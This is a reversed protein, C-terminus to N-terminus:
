SDNKTEILRDQDKYETPYEKRFRSGVRKITEKVHAALLKESATVVLEGEDSLDVQLGHHRFISMCNLLMDASLLSDFRELRAVGSQSMGLHKALDHQNWGLLIRGVKIGVMYKQSQKLQM